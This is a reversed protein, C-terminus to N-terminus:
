GLRASLLRNRILALAGSLGGEVLEVRQEVAVLGGHLEAPQDRLVAGPGAFADYGANVVLEGQTGAVGMEFGVAPPLVVVLLVVDGVDEGLIFKAVFGADLGFVPVPVVFSAVDLQPEELVVKRSASRWFSSVLEPRTPKRCANEGADM